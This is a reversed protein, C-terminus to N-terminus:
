YTASTFSLDVDEQVEEWLDNEIQKVTRARKDYYAYLRDQECDYNVVHKKKKGKLNIITQKNLTSAYYQQNGFPNKM